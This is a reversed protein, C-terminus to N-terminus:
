ASTNSTSQKSTRKQETSQVSQKGNYIVGKLETIATNFEDRTIFNNNLQESKQTVVETYNFTRINCMGVSDSIKIYFVGDNESDMLITNSNPALQYAKAGEIGNVWIIGNTQPQFKPPFSLYPNTSYM